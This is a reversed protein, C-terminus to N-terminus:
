DDRDPPISELLRPAETRILRLLSQLEDEGIALAAQLHQRTKEALQERAATLWRAATARHTQHMRAIDDISASASLSLRLLHRDKASLETVATTFARAFERAYRDKLARLEPDAEGVLVDLTAEPESRKDGRRLSLAERVAATRVLGALGSGLAYRAIPALREGPKAVLLKVRVRQAVEDVFAADGGFRRLAPGVQHMYHLDFLRHAEADDGGATWCLVSEAPDLAALRALLERQGGCADVLWARYADVDWALTPWADRAVKVHEGWAGSADVEDIDDAASM